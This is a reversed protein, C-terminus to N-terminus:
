TFLAPALLDFQIIVFLVLVVIFMESITLISQKPNETYKWEFFARVAYQTGSTIILAILFINISFNGFIILYLCVILVIATSIRIIWDIKQHLNNIHNYSFFKKKVKEINFAKKLIIRVMAILTFTVLVILIFNLWIM